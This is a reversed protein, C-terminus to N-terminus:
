CPESGHAYIRFTDDYWELAPGFFNDGSTSQPTYGNCEGYKEDLLDALHKGQFVRDGESCLFAGTGGTCAFRVCPGRPEANIAPNHLRLDDIINALRAVTLQPQAPKCDLSTAATFGATAAVITIFNLLQM